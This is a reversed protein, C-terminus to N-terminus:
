RRRPTTLLLLATLLATAAAPEPVATFYVRDISFSAGGRDGMFALTIADISTFDATPLADDLPVLETETVQALPMLLTGYGAPLVFDGSSGATPQDADDSNWLVLHIPVTGNSDVYDIALYVFPTLDLDLNAAPSPDLWVAAYLPATDADSAIQLRGKVPDVAARVEGTPLSTAGFPVGALLSHMRYGGIASTLDYESTLPAPQLYRAVLPFDSPQEVDEFTDVVVEGFAPRSGVCAALAVFLCGGRVWSRHLWM